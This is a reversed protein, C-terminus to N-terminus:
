EGDDEQLKVEIYGYEKTSWRKKMLCTTVQCDDYWLRENIGDLLLGLFNNLDPKRMPLKEKKALWKSKTRWFTVTMKVSTHIPFYCTDKYQNLFAKIYEQADVTRQPTYTHVKGNSYSTRPRGKPTPEYDITLEIAKM